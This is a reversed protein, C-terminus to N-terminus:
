ASIDIDRALNNIRESGKLDDNMIMQDRRFTAHRAKFGLSQNLGIAACNTILDGFM